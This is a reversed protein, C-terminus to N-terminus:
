PIIPIAPITLTIFFRVDRLHWYLAQTAQEKCDFYSYNNSQNVKEKTIAKILKQIPIISM